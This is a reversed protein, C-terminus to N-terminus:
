ILKGNNNKAINFLFILLFLTSTLFIFLIMGTQANLPFIPSLPLLKPITLPLMDPERGLNDIVSLHPGHGEVFSLHYNRTSCSLEGRLKESSLFESNDLDRAVVRNSRSLLGIAAALSNPEGDLNCPRQWTLYILFVTFICLAGLVAQSARSWVLNVKFGPSKSERTISTPTWSKPDIMDSSTAFSFLLQFAERYMNALTTSELLHPLTTNTQNYLSFGALGTPWYVNISSNSLTRLAFYDPDRRQEGFRKILQSDVDPQQDPTYGFGVLLDITNRDEDASGYAEGLHIFRWLSDNSTFVPPAYLSRADLPRVSQVLGTPMQVTAEVSQKYFIPECFIATWNLPISSNSGGKTRDPDAPSGWVYLVTGPPQDPPPEIALGTWPRDYHIREQERYFEIEEELQTDDNYWSIDKMIDDRPRDGLVWSFDEGNSINFGILGFKPDVVQSVESPEECILDAEFLTTKGTWTENKIGRIGSINFPALAFEPTTFPLLSGNLWAYEYAIYAFVASFTRAPDDMSFMEAKSGQETRTQVVTGEDFIGSTLPTLLLTTLLLITSSWVIVWHRCWLILRHSYDLVERPLILRVRTQISGM